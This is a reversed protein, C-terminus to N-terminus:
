VVMDRLQGQADAVSGIVDSLVIVEDRNLDASMTEQNVEKQYETTLLKSAQEILELAKKLNEKNM